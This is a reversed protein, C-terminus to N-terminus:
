LREEKDEEVAVAVPVVAAVRVVLSVEEEAVAVVERWPNHLCARAAQSGVIVRWRRM